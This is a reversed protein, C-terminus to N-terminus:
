FGAVKGILVVLGKAAFGVLVGILSYLVFNRATKTKEPDGQATIFYYGAIMIWIAATILLIAFIWNTINNLLEMTDVTPATTPPEAALAILPLALASALILTSIIKKM